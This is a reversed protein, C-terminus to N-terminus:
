RVGRSTKLRQLIDQAEPTLTKEYMGWFVLRADLAPYEKRLVKRAYFIAEEGERRITEDRAAAKRWSAYNPYGLTQAALAPISFYGTDSVFQMDEMYAATLGPLFDERLQRAMGPYRDQIGKWLLGLTYGDLEHPDAEEKAVRRAELLDRGFLAVAVKTDNGRLEEAPIREARDGLDALADYQAEAFSRMDLEGRRLRAGLVDPTERTQQVQAAFWSAGAPEDAPEEGVRICSSPFFLLQALLLAALVFVVAGVNRVTEALEVLRERTM